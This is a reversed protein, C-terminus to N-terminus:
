WWKLKIHSYGSYEGHMNVYDILM